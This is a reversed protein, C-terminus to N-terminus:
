LYNMAYKYRRRVNENDHATGVGFWKKFSHAPWKKYAKKIVADARKVSSMIKNKEFSNCNSNSFIKKGRAANHHIFRVNKMGRRNQFNAVPRKISTSTTASGLTIAALAASTMLKLFM